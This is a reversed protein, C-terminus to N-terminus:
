KVSSPRPHHCHFVVVVICTPFEANASVEKVIVDACHELNFIGHEGEPLDLLVIFGLRSVAAYAAAQSGPRFNKKLENALLPAHKGRRVKLELPIQGDFLIDIEGAFREPKKVVKAGFEERLREYIQPLFFDNEIHLISDNAHQDLWKKIPDRLFSPEELCYAAQKRYDIRLNMEGAVQGWLLLRRMLEAALELDVQVAQALREALVAPRVTIDFIPLRSQDSPTYTQICALKGSTPEGTQLWRLRSEMHKTFYEIAPLTDAHPVLSTGCIANLGDTILETRKNSIEFTVNKLCEELAVLDTNRYLDALSIQVQTLDLCSVDPCKSLILRGFFTESLETFRLCHHQRGRFGIEDTDSSDNEGM